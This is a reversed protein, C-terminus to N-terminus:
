RGAPRITRTRPARPGRESGSPAPDSWAPPSPFLTQVWKLAPGLTAPAGTLALGGWAAAGMLGATLTLRRLRRALHGPIRLRRGLDPSAEGEAPLLELYRRLLVEWDAAPKGGLVRAITRELAACGRFRRDPRKRLCKLIIRQAARPVGRKVRRPSTPRDAIIKATVSEVDDEAFPRQGTMLEYLVIGLSFVDSAPTLREGRIQEPSMYALTGLTQGPQTLGPTDMLHAIGFDGVKAVGERTILLNSPKLDRHIIGRAHAFALGGCVQGVLALAVYPPLAGARRLMAATDLGEVLEMVLYRHERDRWFDYVQVINRHPLNAAARAERQFRDQLESDRRFRSKLEKIAVPRDLFAHHGKYITAMGGGGLEELLIYNGLRQGSPGKGGDRASLTTAEGAEEM